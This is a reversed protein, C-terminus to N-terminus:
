PADTPEVVGALTAARQWCPAEWGGMERAWALLDLLAQRYPNPTCDGREGHRHEAAALVTYAYACSDYIEGTEPNRHEGADSMDDILWRLAGYLPDGDDFDVESIHVTEPENGQFYLDVVKQDIMGGPDGADDLRAREHWVRRCYGAVLAILKARTRAAYHDRGHRHDVAAVWITDQPSEQSLSNMSVEM